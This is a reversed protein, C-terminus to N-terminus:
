YKFVMKLAPMFNIYRGSFFAYPRKGIVMTIAQYINDCCCLRLFAAAVTASRSVGAACHILVNGQNRYKNIFMLVKPLARAMTMNDEPTNADHVKIRIYPIGQKEFYNPISTTVNVVAVINNREFFSIDNATLADSVFLGDLIKTAPM